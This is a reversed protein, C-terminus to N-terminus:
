ATGGGPLSFCVRTGPESPQEVWINGGAAEVIKKAVALGIGTGPQGPRPNLREFMRFVRDHFEPPIGIGADTVGVVVKGDRTEASVRVRPPMGPCAYSIANDLLVAFVQSLAAPTIALPPLPTREVVAGSEGIRAALRELALDLGADGAVPPGAVNLVDISLYTEADALLARHRQAANLIADLSQQVEPPVPPPLRRALHQAFIHQQRVPEQLHHALVEAFRELEENRRTLAAGLEQATALAHRLDQEHRVQESVDRIIAVEFEDAGFAFYNASVQVPVASGDPRRVVASLCLPEGPRVEQWHSAWGDRTLGMGLEWAGIGALDGHEKQFLDAAAANASVVLGHRDLLLVAEAQHNFAFDILKLRGQLRKRSRLSVLAFRGGAATFLLFALAIGAVLVSDQWWQRALETTSLGVLLYYPYGRVRHYSLVREVGDIAAYARYTGREPQAATVEQLQRSVAQNGTANAGGVTEPYRAIAALSPLPGRLAIADGPRLDVGSFLDSFRQVPVSAYVIGAFGGDGATIRRALVIVWVKTVRGMLPPSIVLGAEPNDRLTRFYDRDALNVEYRPALGESAVVVSGGADVISFGLAEPVRAHTRRLMDKLYATDHRGQGQERETQEAVVQLAADVRDLQGSVAESLIASLNRSVIEARLLYQQRSDHASLGALGLVFTDLVLVIVVIRM